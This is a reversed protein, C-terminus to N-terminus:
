AVFRDWYWRLLANGFFVALLAVSGLFVGFPMAYYRMLKASEWARRRAIPGPERNRKMRRRTRKIWVWPMMALGFVAGILSAGFITFVTLKVGLFAGAMAMLKVDGLGMGERGRALKYIMGSGFIFAAGAAAGLLADLLSLMRWEATLFRTAVDNVPVFWAFVLGLIVGPLTYSDPLLKHEADTFILAILLFAFVCYKLMELTLGFQAYSALFLLGTLLEVAAYRFAIPKRCHRCRGRLILWSLVPINDYWHIPQECHPCFSRSPSAVSRWAAISALATKIASEDPSEEPLARPIRYICVNLFSGFTLGFLFVATAIIIDM